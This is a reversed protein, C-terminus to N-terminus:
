AVTQSKSLKLEKLDLDIYNYTFSCLSNKVKDQVYRGGGFNSLRSVQDWVDETVSMIEFHNPCTALGYRVGLKLVDM